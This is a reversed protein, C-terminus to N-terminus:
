VAVAWEARSAELAGEAMARAPEESVAGFRAITTAAVRVQQIKADNSYTVFGREFWESRGAIATMAGALLGGTCSEATAIRVRARMAAEGLAAALAHITEDRRM